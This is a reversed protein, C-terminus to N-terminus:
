TSASKADELARASIIQDIPGTQLLEIMADKNKRINIGLFGAVDSERHLDFDKEMGHLVDTIDQKNFAFYIQDDVWAVCEM